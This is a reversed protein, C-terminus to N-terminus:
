EAAAKLITATLDTSKTGAHAVEARKTSRISVDHGAAKTRLAGVTCQERGGLAAFPDYSFHRMANLHTIRDIDHDSVGDFHDWLQEPSFPWTSDSHPYDCEWMVHDLNLAARGSVGFRDDIFCTLVHEDFVEYRIRATGSRRNSTEILGAIAGLSGNQNIGVRFVLVGKEDYRSPAVLVARLVRSSM